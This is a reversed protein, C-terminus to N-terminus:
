NEECDSKDNCESDSFTDIYEEMSGELTAEELPLLPPHFNALFACVYVTQNTLCALSTPITEKLISFTNIRGIAREVHISL